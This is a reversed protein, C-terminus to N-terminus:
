PTLGSCMTFAPDCNTARCMVCAPSASDQICMGLCKSITCGIIGDFCVSCGHSLGTMMEICMETKPEQGFNTQGCDGVVKQVDIKGLITTDAQNTCAGTMAAHAMDPPTTLDAPPTLDPPSQALDGFSASGDPFTTQSTSGGCAVLVAALVSVSLAVGLATLLTTSRTRIM